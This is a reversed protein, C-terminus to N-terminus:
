INSFGLPPLRALFKVAFTEFIRSRLDDESCIYKRFNDNPAGPQYHAKHTIYILAHDSIALQVVGCNAIKLPSNVICLDIFSRSNLTIRTPETILQDLDYIVLIHKLKVANSVTTDPLFDVNIDGLLFFQWNGADIKRVSEEFEDFLSM